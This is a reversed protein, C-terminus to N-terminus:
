YLDVASIEEIGDVPGGGALILPFGQRTVQGLDGADSSEAQEWIPRIRPAPVDVSEANGRRLFVAILKEIPIAVPMNQLGTAGALAFEGYAEIRRLRRNFINPPPDIRLLLATICPM